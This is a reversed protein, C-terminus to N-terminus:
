LRTPANRFQWRLKFLRFLQYLASCLFFLRQTGTQKPALTACFLNHWLHRRVFDSYQGPDYVPVIRKALRSGGRTFDPQKKFIHATVKRWRGTAYHPIDKSVMETIHIHIAWQSFQHATLYEGRYEAVLGLVHQCASVMTRNNYQGNFAAGGTDYNKDDNYYADAEKLRAEAETYFEEIESKLEVPPQPPPVRMIGWRIFWRVLSARSPSRVLRHALRQRLSGTPKQTLWAKLFTDYLDKGQRFAIYGRVYKLRYVWAWVKQEEFIRESKYAARRAELLRGAGILAWVRTYIVRAQFVVWDNQKLLQELQEAFVIADTYHRFKYYLDLWGRQVELWDLTIPMPQKVLGDAERLYKQAQEHDFARIHANVLGLLIRIKQSTDEPNQISHMQLLTTLQRISTRLPQLHLKSNILLLEFRIRTHAPLHILDRGSSFNEALVRWAEWNHIFECFDAMLLVVEAREIDPQDSRVVILAEEWRASYYEYRLKGSQLAQHANRLTGIKSYGQKTKM